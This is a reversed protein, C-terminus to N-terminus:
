KENWIRNFEEKLIFDEPQLNLESLSQDYLISEERFPNEMTLFIKGKSTIEIQRIAKGNLFHLYFLIYLIKKGINRLM